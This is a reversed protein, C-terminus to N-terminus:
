LDMIETADNESHMLKFAHDESDANLMEKLRERLKKLTEKEGYTGGRIEIEKRLAGLRKKSSFTKILMMNDLALPLTMEAATVNSAKRKNSRTNKAYKEVRERVKQTKQIKRLAAASVYDTKDFVNYALNRM